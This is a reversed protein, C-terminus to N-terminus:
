NVYRWSQPDTPYLYKCKCIDDFKLYNGLEDNETCNSADEQLFKYYHEKIKNLKQYITM